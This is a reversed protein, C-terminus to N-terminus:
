RFSAYDGLSEILPGLYKEVRKWRQVSSGYIPQRVQMVSATRVSRETKHFSLCADQWDLECYEILRRAESEMNAVIDEYQIEYFQGPVARRWHEMLKAYSVYHRGLETLNYTAPQTWGFLRTFCSVCTDIPDRKVHIIKADPFMVTILGLAFYNAPMKDTIRTKGEPIPPIDALYAKAWNGIEAPKIHVLNEPYLPANQGPPRLQQVVEMMTDLEGAGFVHSHSAIIQETLTTGSRPMGLIFIPAKSSNGKGKMRAIFKRDVVEIIREARAADLDADYQLQGRKLSAGKLYDEFGEEYQGLDDRVKGRAYHFSLRKSVSLKDLESIAALREILPDDAKITKV